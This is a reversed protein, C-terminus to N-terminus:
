IAVAGSVRFWQETDDTYYYLANGSICIDGHTGSVTHTTREPIVLAKPALVDAEGSAM